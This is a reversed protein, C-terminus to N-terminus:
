IVILIREETTSAKATRAVAPGAKAAGIEEPGEVEVKVEGEGEAEAGDSLPAIERPVIPLMAETPMGMMLPM